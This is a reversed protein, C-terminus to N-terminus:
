VNIVKRIINDTINRDISNISSEVRLHLWPDSRHCCSSNIESSSDSRCSVKSQPLFHSTSKLAPFVWSTENSQDLLVPALSTFISPDTRSSIDNKLISPNVERGFQIPAIIYDRNSFSGVLFNSGHNMRHLEKRRLNSQIETFRGYPCAHFVTIM